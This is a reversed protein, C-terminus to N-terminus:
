SGKRECKGNQRLADCSAEVRVGKNSPSFGLRRTICDELVELHPDEFEVVMQCDTCILHNHHPHDIFNPDYCKQDRGLDIERLLGSEVLLALTRYLTARSTSPDIERAKEWLEEATFHDQTGFAAEIIVERQTTRRLGKLQLFADIRERVVDDM